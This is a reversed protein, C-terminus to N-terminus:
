SQDQIQRARALRARVRQVRKRAAAQTIGLQESADDYSAGGVLCLQCLKRDLENLSQIEALVWRLERAAAQKDAARHADLRSESLESLPITRRTRERRNGNMSTYKCTTLLWPLASGGHVDISRRRRWLILFTDQVIDDVDRPQDALAWAYRFVSSSHRTMLETFADVNGKKVDEVLEADTAEGATRSERM